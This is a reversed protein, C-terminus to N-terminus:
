PLHDGAHRRDCEDEDQIAEDDYDNLSRVAREAADWDGMGPPVAPAREEELLIIEVTRGVPSKLEPLVPTESDISKRSRIANMLRGKSVVSATDRGRKAGHTPEVADSRPDRTAGPQPLRRSVPM